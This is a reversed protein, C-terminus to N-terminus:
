HHRPISFSTAGDCHFSSGNKMPGHKRESTHHLRIIGLRFIVISQLLSIASNRSQVATRAPPHTPPNKPGAPPQALPRGSPRGSPHPISTMEDSVRQNRYYPDIDEIPVATLEPPFVAALRIPLPM